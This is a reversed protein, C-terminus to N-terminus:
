KRFPIWRRVSKKYALYSEGFRKELGPEEFFVVYAHALLLWILSFLLIGISRECLGFGALMVCGGIYMPNRVLRYPGSAVFQRPPDFPAATGRGGYVFAGLCWLALIAGLCVLIVGPIGSWAPLLHPFYQDVARFRSAIWAWILLFATGYFIAKAGTFFFNM